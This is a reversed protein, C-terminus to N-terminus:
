QYSKSFYLLAIAWYCFLMPLVWTARFYFGQLAWMFELNGIIYMTLGTAVAAFGIALFQIRQHLEDLSQLFRMFILIMVIAPAIPIAVFLAEAIDSKVPWLLNTWALMSIGYAFATLILERILRKSAQSM